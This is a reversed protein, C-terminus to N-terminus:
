SVEPLVLGFSHLRPDTALLYRVTIRYDDVDKDGSSENTKTISMM